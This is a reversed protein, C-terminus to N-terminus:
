GVMTVSSAFIAVAILGGVLFVTIVTLIIYNRKKEDLISEKINEYVKPFAIYQKLESQENDKLWRRNKRSIQERWDYKKQKWLDQYQEKSLLTNLQSLDNIKKTEKKM